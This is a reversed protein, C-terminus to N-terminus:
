FKRLGESFVGRSEIRQNYDALAARSKELWEQSKHNDLREVLPRSKLKVSRELEKLDSTM